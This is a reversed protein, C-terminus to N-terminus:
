ACIEMRLGKPDLPPCEPLRLAEGRFIRAATWACACADLFDDAGASLAPFHKARLFAADFDFSRLLIRREELASENAKGRMKKPSLLRGGSMTLFALEPHCEFVHHQLDPTMVSDVERIKPFLNFTQRSIQRPPDSHVMAAACAARYDIQEVAARAPVAFVSSRRPGLLARAAADCARGRGEAFAPLGIPIDIAIIAPRVPHSLIGTFTKALFTQEEFPAEVRRLVCVWGGRCGDVGAVVANM